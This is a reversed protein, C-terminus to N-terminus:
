KQGKARFLFGIFFSLMLLLSDDGDCSGHMQNILIRPYFFYWCSFWQFIHNNLFWRLTDVSTIPSLGILKTKWFDEHTSRVLFIYWCFWYSLHLNSLLFECQWIFEWVLEDRYVFWWVVHFWFFGLLLGICFVFMENARLVLSSFM